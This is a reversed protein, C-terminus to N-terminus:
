SVLSYDLIKLFGYKVGQINVLDIGLNKALQTKTMRLEIRNTIKLRILFKKIEEEAYDSVQHLQSLVECIPVLGMNQRAYDGCKELIFNMLTLYSDIQVKDQYFLNLYGLGTESKAPDPIYDYNCHKILKERIESLVANKSLIEKEMLFNLDRNYNKVLISKEGCFRIINEHRVISSSYILCDKLGQVANITSDLSISVKPSPVTDSYFLNNCSFLDLVYFGTLYNKITGKQIPKGINKGKDAILNGFLSDRLSRLTQGDNKIIAEVILLEKKLQEENEFVTNPEYKPYHFSPIVKIM